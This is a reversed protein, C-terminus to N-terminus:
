YRNFCCLIDDYVSLIFRSNSLATVESIYGVEKQTMFGATNPDIDNYVTSEPLLDRIIDPDVIVFSSLPFLNHRDLWRMVHGKGVGMCGATFLIWNYDAPRECVVGNDNIYTHDFSDIFRDHMQQREASYHKHYTYDLQKRYEAYKGLFIPNDTAYNDETSKTYDYGSSSSPAQPSDRSTMGHLGTSLSFKLLLCQLVLVVYIYCRQVSTRSNLLGVSWSGMCV